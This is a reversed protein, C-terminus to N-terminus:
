SVTASNHKKVGPVTLRNKRLKEPLPLPVDAAKDNLFGLIDVKAAHLRAFFTSEACNCERAKQANTMSKTFHLMIVLKRTEDLACICQDLEAADDDMKPTWAGFTGPQEMMRALPSSNSFGVGSDARRIHWVAWQVLRADIYTTLM